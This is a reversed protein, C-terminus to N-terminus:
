RMRSIRRALEKRYGHEFVEEFDFAHRFPEFSDESTKILLRNKVLNFVIHGFDESCRIGWYELVTKALPGYKNKVLEKISELLEEGSVHRIRRFKKRAYGLAEMVFAYADQGYRGDKSTIKEIIRYFQRDM